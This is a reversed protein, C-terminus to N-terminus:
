DVMAKQLFMNLPRLAKFAQIITKELQDTLVETDAITSTM